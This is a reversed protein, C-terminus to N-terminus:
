TSTQQSHTTPPLLRSSFTPRVLSSVLRSTTCRGVSHFVDNVEPHLSHCLRLGEQFPATLSPQTGAARTHARTGEPSDLPGGKTCPKIVGDEERCTMDSSPKWGRLLMLSGSVAWSLVEGRGGVQEPVPLISGTGQPPWSGTSKIDM